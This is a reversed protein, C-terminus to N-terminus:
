YVEHCFMVRAVLLKASLYNRNCQPASNKKNRISYDMQCFGDNEEGTDIAQRLTIGGNL